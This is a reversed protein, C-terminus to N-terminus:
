VPLGYKALAAKIRALNEPGPPCMPSRLDGVKWGLLSLATKVPIPNVECFLKKVFPNIKFGLMAAERFKGDRCLATIEHMQAPLVNAAVSIVGKAGISMAPVTLSDDGIYWDLVGCLLRAAELVQDIDGSAEKVAKM